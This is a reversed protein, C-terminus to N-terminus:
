EPLHRTLTVILGPGNDGVVIQFGHRTAIAAVLALGLGSGPPKRSRDVRYFRQLIKDRENAPVGPGTDAVTATVVNKERHLGMSVFTGQPTHTLANEILNTFMQALLDASGSVIVDAALDLRLTKGQDEAVPAFADGVRAMIESLNVSAAVTRDAFSELTGISLLSRFIRLIDDIQELAGTIGAPYDSGLPLDHLEELQQRLRTIPTRLDHAIDTSVQRLGDILVAMRDLMRNLNHSLQDFEAGMGIAPLREGLDGDMIRAVAVNVKDLRSLFVRGIMFGAVLALLAISLGGGLTVADLKRRLEDVDYTDSAVALFGGDALRVGLGKLAQRQEGEGSDTEQAEFTSWGTQAAAVPLDGALRGGNSDLLLYRFQHDRNARQHVAIARILGTRGEIRQESLLLATESEISGAAAEFAYGSVAREVFFLLLTSGAAFVVAFLLAFRFAGSHFISSRGM